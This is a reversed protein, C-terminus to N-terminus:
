SILRGMQIATIAAEYGKNNGDKCRDLAQETTETTLVGFIVPKTHKLMVQQCGQTVGQCVYDFHATGGEIVAALCIVVDHNKQLLHDAMVPVEFAGPVWHVSINQDQVQHEQLGNICGELLRQTIAGNFEAVVIATKLSKGNLDGKQSSIASPIDYSYDPLETKM